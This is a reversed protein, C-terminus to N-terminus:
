EEATERLIADADLTVPVSMRSPPVSAPLPFMLTEPVIFKWSPVNVPVPAKFMALPAASVISSPDILPALKLPRRKSRATLLEPVMVQVLVREVDAVALPAIVFR